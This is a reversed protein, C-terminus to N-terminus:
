HAAPGTLPHGEPTWEERSGIRTGNEYRERSWLQGNEHWFIETGNRDGHSYEVESKKKGSGRWETWLGHRKGDLWTGLSQREGSQHYIVETGSKRGREYTGENLLLGADNWEMWPGQLKGDQYGMEYQKRGNLHWAVRTGQELGKYFRTNWHLLGEPYFSRAPGQKTTGDLECWLGSHKPPLGGGLIQGPECCFMGGAREDLELCQPQAEEPNTPAAEAESTNQEGADDDDGCGESFVLLALTLIMLHQNM